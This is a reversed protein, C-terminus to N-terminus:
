DGEQSEIRLRYREALNDIEVKARGQLYRVRLQAREGQLLTRAAESELLSWGPPLAARLADAHAFVLAIDRLVRQADVSAPLLPHRQVDLRRGDWHLTLVRQGLALAVLRLQQGDLQLLTDLQRESVPLLPDTPAEQVTLRQTLQLPPGFAQPAIQLLPLAPLPLATTACGGLLLLLLSILGRM